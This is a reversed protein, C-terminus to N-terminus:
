QNCGPQRRGTGSQCGRGARWTRFLRASPRARFQCQHWRPVKSCSRCRQGRSRISRWVSKSSRDNQLLSASGTRLSASPFFRTKPLYATKRHLPRSEEGGSREPESHCIAPGLTSKLQLAIAANPAGERHHSPTEKKLPLPLTFHCIITSYLPDVHIRPALGSLNLLEQSNAALKSRIYRM